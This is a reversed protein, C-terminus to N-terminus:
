FKYSTSSAQENTQQQKYNFYIKMFDCIFSEMLKQPDSSVDKERFYNGYNMNCLISAVEEPHIIFDKDETIYSAIDVKKDENLYVSKFPSLCFIILSNPSCMYDKWNENLKSGQKNVYNIFISAFENPSMLTEFNITIGQNIGMEDRIFQCIVGFDSEHIKGKLNERFNRKFNYQLSPDNQQFYKRTDNDDNIFTHIKGQKTLLLFLSKKGEPYRAVIENKKDENKQSHYYRFLMVDVLISVKEESKLSELYDIAPSYGSHVKIFSNLFDATKNEQNLFTEYESYDMKLLTAVAEQPPIFDKGAIKETLTPHSSNLYTGGWPKMCFLYIPNYDDSQLYDIWDKSLSVEQACKIFKDAFEGERMKTELNIGIEHLTFECIAKFESNEKIKRQLNDRCDWRFSLNSPYNKEFCNRINENFKHAKGRQVLLSFFNEEKLYFYRALIENQKEENKQSRYYRFLIVDILIDIKEASELSELRKISDSNKVFFNSFSKDDYDKVFVLNSYKQEMKFRM